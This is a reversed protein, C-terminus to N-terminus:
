LEKAILTRTVWSVSMSGAFKAKQMWSRHHVRVFAASADQNILFVNIFSHVLRRVGLYFSLRSM